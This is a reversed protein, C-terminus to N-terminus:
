KQKLEPFVKDIPQEFAKSIKLATDIRPIQSNCGMIMLELERNPKM